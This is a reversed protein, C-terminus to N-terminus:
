PAGLVKAIETELDVRKRVRAIEEGDVYVVWDTEHPSYNELKFDGSWEAVPPMIDVRHREEGLTVEGYIFGYGDPAPKLNLAPKDM